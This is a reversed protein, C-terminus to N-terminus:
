TEGERALHRLPECLPRPSKRADLAPLVAFTTLVMLLAASSALHLAMKRGDTRWALLLGWLGFSFAGASLACLAPGPTAALGPGGLVMERAVEAFRAEDPAWLDTAGLNVLFLVASLALLVPLHAPYKV